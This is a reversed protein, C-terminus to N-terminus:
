TLTNENEEKQAVCIKMHAGKEKPKAKIKGHMKEEIILKAMYLGFGDGDKKDTIFPEFIKELNEEAIGVGNDHIDICIDQDNKSICIDICGQLDELSKRKLISDKANNIINLISQKFENPYGFISCNDKTLNELKVEIYNYKLNHEIIKLIEQIAEYVNFTVKKTSPKIFDRFDDITNTMYAVQTMIDDVFVKVDDQTIQSKKRKYFLEQAISSIEVLPTKWQHAISTITEGIESLKSRQIIFQEEKKRQNQLKKYDTIDTIVTVVGTTEDNKDLYKQRRMMVHIPQKATKVLVTELEDVFMYKSCKLCVEPMIESIKKGIIEKKSRNLLECLSENCGLLIDENSKWFISSKINNLLVNDLKSQESMKVELSIRKSINVILGIILLVLLPMLVFVSDIVERNREFFSEPKNIITAQLPLNDQSISFKRLINYDFYPHAFPKTIELQLPSKGELIAITKNAAIQGQELPNIMYGGIIGEGLHIKNLAFIPYKSNIFLERLSNYPIYNGYKDTYLSTLLIASNKPLIKINEHLQQLDIDNDYLISFERKFPEIAELIQNKIVLSSFTNDSIIYLTHLNPIIKKIMEINKDIPKYEVVGTVFRQLHLPINQEEFNEVGCFVIPAEKFLTKHHKLAFEFAYNDAAIVAKYDRKSFKKEYLLFLTELYELSDIKKTDMYETTLEYQLDKGFVNEAGQSIGDSWKLGKNYSHLLLIQTPANAFLLISLGIFLFFIKM